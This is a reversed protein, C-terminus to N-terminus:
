WAPPTASCCRSSTTGAARRALRGPVDGVPEALIATRRRTCARSSSSSRARGAPSTALSRRAGARGARPLAEAFRRRAGAGGRLARPPRRRAAAVARDRRLRRRAARGADQGQDLRVTHIGGVKNCVEWSVEFLTPTRVDRDAASSPASSSPASTSRARVPARAVRRALDDLVNMFAIFADHPTDYPSFYKHVDGDSFWKTCMYYLHDSTSLKRWDACCARTARAPRARCPAAPARLAGRQAARQMPNGLWATLDREADAWSVPRPIALEDRRARRAAAVERRRASASARRRALVREPLRECSSSSARRRGSTSASRRTTWSSASSRRRRAPVRTRALEAFTRRSLPWEAWPRNSFRFAIDDRAATARAAPAQAARTGERGTSTTRPQALRAPPRRGRRAAGHLGLSEVCRPSADRRHRARHQPVDDARRGFLREVRDRRRRSRRASSTRTARARRALPAVDRGPVRRSGTAGPRQFSELAEPAWREMQELATGCISFACRFAGETREILRACRAREDAPLLARRRARVIRENEADDFYDDSRRRHRLVHLPAAPVAPAGPLLLRRRDDRAGCAALTRRARVCSRRPADWRLATRRGRPGRPRLQGACPAACRSCRRPDQGRPGGRGLLRGQARQAAGRVVGSQRSVIVPVDLAMAELPAIGFPESVSPMVYVDAMAYM